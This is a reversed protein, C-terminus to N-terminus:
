GGGIAQPPVAFRATAFAPAEAAGARADAIFRALFQITDDVAIGLVICAILCTTPSLAIDLLGLTGFYIAVPVVTPLLAILGARASTFMFSIPLACTQVGTVLACRTHRRRSSFFFFLLLVSRLFIYFASAFLRVSIM